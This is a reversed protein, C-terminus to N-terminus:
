LNVKFITVEENTFVKELYNKEELDFKIKERERETVFLYDIGENKLFEESGEKFFKEVREKKEQFNVTIHPHALYVPRDIFALLLNGTEFSSLIVSNESTNRRIWEMGEVIGKKLYFMENKECYSIIDNGIIIFNSFSLFFIFLIKELLTFKRLISRKEFWSKIHFLSFTTLIALDMQFGETLKRQFPILPCYILFFEVFFWSILFLDKEKRKKSKLLLSLGYTGLFILPGYGILLYPLSPTILINKSFHSTRVPIKFITWLYYFIPPFSFLLVVFYHILYSLNLQKEVLSSILIFFGLTAFITLVYYPHFQFLFSSLVGAMLSYKLNKKEFFLLSLLFILFILSTSFGFHPSNYLSFFSFAEPVWFDIPFQFVGRSDVFKKLDIVGNISMGPILPLFSLFIWGWGSAFTLILLAWKRKKKEEFFFSILFYSSILFIPIVFFKVIQFTYISSLNFIKALIGVSLWFPDFIFYPHSESTSNYRFLFHGDKAQEILSYYYPTDIININQFGLFISDKPEMIKGVLFPFFILFTLILWILFIFFWEEKEIKIM